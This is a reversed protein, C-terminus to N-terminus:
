RDRKVTMESVEISGSTNGWVGEPGEGRKIRGNSDQGKSFAADAIRIADVETNATVTVKRVQTVTYEKIQPM